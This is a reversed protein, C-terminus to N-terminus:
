ALSKIIRAAEGLNDAEYDAKVQFNGDEGAYGTKLLITTLNANQGCKIDTTKDGVMFSTAPDINLEREAKKILGIEPKRCSCKQQPTHPCSYIGDLLVGRVQLESRMYTNIEKLHKESILGRGVASQNTVVVLLFGSDKLKKLSQLADEAFEFEDVRTLYGRVQKNITGDRDLFVAAKM